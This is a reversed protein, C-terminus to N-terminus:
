ENVPVSRGERKYKDLLATLHRVVELHSDWLNNKEKPDEAINYLQGPTGPDPLSGCPPPWGGSGQTEFIV